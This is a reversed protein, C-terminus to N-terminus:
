KSVKAWTKIANDGADCDYINKLDALSISNLPNAKNIIVAIGDKAVEYYTCNSAKSSNFAESIMGFDSVGNQGDNYGTGSGGGAVSVSVNKQLTEFEEALFEMLPKLSTSGSIKIEGSLAPDAVYQVANEKTSVYGKESIIKQAQASQLYTLFAANVGSSVRSAQYIVNLPRSIKYTGNKINAVTPAVGDVNLLKVEDTVFGLSDYAIALSNGKVEQLVATTGTAVIAGSVDAKGKLGILEMFASKTGSGDERVVVSINKNEDFTATDKKCATFSAGAGFALTLSLAAMVSKKM